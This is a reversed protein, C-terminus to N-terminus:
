SYWTLSGFFMWFVWLGGILRWEIWRMWLNFFLTWAMTQVSKISMPQLICIPKSMPWLFWMRATHDQGDLILGVDVRICHNPYSYNQLKFEFFVHIHIAGKITSTNQLKTPCSLHPLKLLVHNNHLKLLAHNYLKILLSSQPPDRTESRHLNAGSDDRDSKWKIRPESEDSADM